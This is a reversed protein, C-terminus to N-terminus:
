QITATTRVDILVYCNLQSALKIVDDGTPPTLLILDDARTTM